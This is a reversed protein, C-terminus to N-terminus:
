PQVKARAARLNRAALEAAKGYGVLFAAVGDVKEILEAVATRISVADQMAFQVRRTPGSAKANAKAIEGDLTALVDIRDASM